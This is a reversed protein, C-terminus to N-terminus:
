SLQLTEVAETVLEEERWGGSEPVFGVGECGGEDGFRVGLVKEAVWMGTRAHLSAELARGDRRGGDVHSAGEALAQFVVLQDRMWEDVCGGHEIEAILDDSVKRVINPVIQSTKGARVGGDYLWDRGFKMGTSTTAVLLLYYRKEHHSPEFAIDIQPDSAVGFIRSQRKEFMLDLNDRFDQETDRPALVTARVSIVDGRDRLSFAPPTGTLPTVTFTASGLRTSGTSWGRSHCISTILPIGVLALMPFLVQEVYEYSPSNSVNTGGTIRLRVPQRAGCFLLYPLVAQLVLNISGPTSQSISVHGAAIDCHLAPLTEPTFTIEKSSLGAGSIRANSAQGLWLMSTLHQAKLGGGGSRKGRIKTINIPKKTLSSLGLAIRLLQGGGELTTGDLHIPQLRPPAM